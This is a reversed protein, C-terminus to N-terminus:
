GLSWVQFCHRHTLPNYVWLKGKPYGAKPDQLLYVESSAQALELCAKEVLALDKAQELSIRRFGSSDKLTPRHNSEFRVWVDHEQWSFGGAELSHVQARPEVFVSDYFTHANPKTGFNFFWYAFVFVAGFYLPIAIALGVLLWRLWKPLRNFFNLRFAAM